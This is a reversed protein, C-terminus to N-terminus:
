HCVSLVFLAEQPVVDRGLRGASDRAGPEVPWGTSAWAAGSRYLAREDVVRAYLYDDEDSVFERWARWCADTQPRKRSPRRRHAAPATARARPAVAVNAVTPVDPARFSVDDITSAAGAPAGSRHRGHGRRGQIWATSAPAVRRLRRRREGGDMARSWWRTRCWIAAAIGELRQAMTAAWQLRVVPAPDDYFSQAAVGAIAWADIAARRPLRRTHANQRARTSWRHPDAALSGYCSAADDRWCHM